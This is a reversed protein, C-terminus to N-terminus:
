STARLVERELDKADVVGRFRAIIYGDADTIVIFPTYTVELSSVLGATQQAAPDSAFAPDVVISGDPQTTMYKSVDFSVLDIAGRYDDLVADIAARQDNTDKQTSDYLFVIMPQKADLRETIAQPTEANRPFPEYVVTETPSNDVEVVVAGPAAPAAPPASQQTETSGQTETAQDGGGGCGVLILALAVFVTAVVIRSRM